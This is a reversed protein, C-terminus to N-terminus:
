VHTGNLVPAANVEDLTRVPCGRGFVADLLGGGLEDVVQEPHAPRRKGTPRGLAALVTPSMFYAGVVLLSVLEFSAPDREALQSLSAWSPQAPLAEIAAALADGEGGVAAAAQQVVDDFDPLAEPAPSEASGPLLVIATARVRALQERSLRMSATM